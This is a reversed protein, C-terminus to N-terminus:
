VALLQAHFDLKMQVADTIGTILQHKEMATQIRQKLTTSSNRKKTEANKGM